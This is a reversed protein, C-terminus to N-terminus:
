KSGSAMIGMLQREASLLRTPGDPAPLADGNAALTMIAPHIYSKKAIAPTNGLRAAAAESLAKLTPKDERMLVETAATSGSWTRFDKASFARGTLDHIFENVDHSTICHGDVEFLAQGPLQQLHKVANILLKDEILIDRAKGGKGIYHLELLEDHIDVHANCLSVAGIASTRGEKGIRLAGKDLLRVICACAFDVPDDMDLLRSQVHRRLAPLGRGFELMDAFKAEDRVRRWEPHYIYQTRGAEDEGTALIHARESPSLWVNKWAPPVALTELRLREEGSITDGSDDVYRWGKGRRQRRWGPKDTDAWVLKAHRAGVTERALPVTSSFPM